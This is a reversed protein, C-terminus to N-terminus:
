PFTVEIGDKEINAKLLPNINHGREWDLENYYLCSMAVGYDVNIDASIDSLKERDEKTKAKKTLVLLDVDSYEEAEGRAKSGFLIIKSVSLEERIKIYLEQVARNEDTTLWKEM